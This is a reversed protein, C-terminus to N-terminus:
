MRSKYKKKIDGAKIIRHIKEIDSLLHDTRLPRWVAFRGFSFINYKDTLRMILNLRRDEDIAKIKGIPMKTWNYDIESFCGSIGFAELVFRITDVTSDHHDQKEISEIILVQEQITARYVTTEYSPFYLTQNVSSAINLNTRLVYVPNYEFNIEQTKEQCAIKAMVTMPLTSICIDYRIISKRTGAVICHIKDDKIEKVDMEWFLNSPPKHGDILWREQDGLNNLSRKGIQDYLKMSYMNNLKINSETTIRGDIYIAKSITVRKCDSGLFRAVQPDRLRMVAPHTGIANSSQKPKPRKDIIIPDYQRLYNYAITGAMGAGIIVIKKGM